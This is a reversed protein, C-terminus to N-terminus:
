GEPQLWDSMSGTFDRCAPSTLPLPHKALCVTHLPAYELNLNACGQCLAHEKSVADFVESIDDIDM